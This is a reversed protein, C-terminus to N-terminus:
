PVGSTIRTPTPPPVSATATSVPTSTDRGSATGTGSTFAAILSLILLVIYLALFTSQVTLTLAQTGFGRGELTDYYHRRNADFIRPLHASTLKAAEQFVAKELDQVTNWWVPVYSILRKTVVLWSLALAGGALSVTVLFGGRVVSLVSGSPTAAFATAWALILVSNAVLAYYLLSWREEQAAILQQAAVQYLTALAAPDSPLRPSQTLGLIASVRAGIAKMM